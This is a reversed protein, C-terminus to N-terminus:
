TLAQSMAVYERAKELATKNRLIEFALKLGDKLTDVRGGVYLVAASNLAVFDLFPGRDGSLVRKFLYANHSADGGRIANKSVYELDMEEPSITYYKIEGHILEWIHTIGGLTMEDLGDEGHVVMSHTSGMLQLVESVKAGLSKDAVGLLQFRAMAPNTLPGLLNFVTRIGLERRVPAAHKMAPHFLPAFMFGFNVDNICREVSSPSLEINSGVAELLDASGCKGSAARNGHKAVKLDAAAAVFAAATSINFSGSGDGGTGATDVSDEQLNVRLSRDRMTLAMGAIEDATEGKIRLATLFSAILASSAQGEMIQGMVDASAERELSEGRILTEIAEHIKM